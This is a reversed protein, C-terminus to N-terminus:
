SLTKELKSYLSKSFIAQIVDQHQEKEARDLTEEMEKADLRMEKTGEMEQVLIRVAGAQHVFSFKGLHKMENLIM